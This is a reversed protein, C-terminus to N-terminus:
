PVAQVRRRLTVFHKRGALAPALEILFQDLLLVEQGLEDGGKPKLIYPKPMTVVIDPRFHWENNSTFQPVPPMAAPNGEPAGNDAWKSIVAIQADSLSPDDKFKTIGVNRDGTGVKVFSLTADGIHVPGSADSTEGLAGDSVVIIEGRPAGRLVDGAFRLARPFDARTDTAHVADLERELASTDGTMPGLPTVMADMQAVLMRDAGGLGRQYWTARQAVFARTM